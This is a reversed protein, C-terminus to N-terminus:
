AEKQSRGIQNQILNCIECASSTLTKEPVNFITDPTSWPKPSPGVRSMDGTWSRNLRDSYEHYYHDLYRKVSPNFVHSLRCINEFGFIVNWYNYILLFFFDYLLSHVRSFTDKDLSFRFLVFFINSVYAIRTSMLKVTIM